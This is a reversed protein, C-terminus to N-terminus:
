KRCAGDANDLEGNQQGGPGSFCCSGLLLDGHELLDSGDRWWTLLRWSWVTVRCWYGPNRVEQLLWVKNSDLGTFLCLLRCLIDASCLGARLTACREGKTGRQLDLQSNHTGKIHLCWGVLVRQVLAGQSQDWVVLPAGRSGPGGSVSGGGNPVGLSIEM